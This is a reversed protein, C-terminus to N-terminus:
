DQVALASVRIAGRQSDISDTTAVEYEAVQLHHSTRHTRSGAISEARRPPVAALWCPELPKREPDSLDLSESAPDALAITARHAAADMLADVGIAFSPAPISSGSKEASPALLVRQEFRGEASRDRPRRARPPRRPSEGGVEVRRTAAFPARTASRQRDRTMEVGMEDLVREAISRETDGPQPDLVDAIQHAWRRRGQPSRRRRRSRPPWFPSSLGSTGPSTRPASRSTIELRGAGTTSKSTVARQMAPAADRM